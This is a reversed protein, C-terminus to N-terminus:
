KNKRRIVFKGNEKLKISYRDNKEKKYHTSSSSGKRTKVPTYSGHFYKDKKRHGSVVLLKCSLRQKGCGNDKASRGFKSFYEDDYYVEDYLFDFENYDYYSEYSIPYNDYGTYDSGKQEDTKQVETSDETSDDDYYEETSADLNSTSVKDATEILFHKSLTTLFCIFIILCKFKLYMERLSGM